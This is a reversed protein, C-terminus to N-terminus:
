YDKWRGAAEERLKALAKKNTRYIGTHQSRSMSEDKQSNVIEEILADAREALNQMKEYYPSDRFSNLLFDIKEKIGDM